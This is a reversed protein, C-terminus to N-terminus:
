NMKGIQFVSKKPISLERFLNEDHIRKLEKDHRNFLAESEILRKVLIKEKRECLWRVNINGENLLGRSTCTM